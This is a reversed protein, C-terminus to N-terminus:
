TTQGGSAVPSRREDVPFLVEDGCGGSTSGLWVVISRRSFVRARAPV